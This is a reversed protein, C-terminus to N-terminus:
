LWPDWADLRQRVAERVALNGAPAGGGSTSSVAPPVGRPAAGLRRLTMALEDRVKEAGKANRRRAAKSKRSTRGQKRDPNPYESPADTEEGRATQKKTVTQKKTATKKKKQTAEDFKLKGLTARDAGLVLALRAALEGRMGDERGWGGALPAHSALDDFASALMRDLLRRLAVVKDALRPDPLGTDRVSMPLWGDMELVAGYQTLPGGFLMAALPSVASTERMYMTDGDTSLSLDNFTFLTSGPQASRNVSGPHVTAGKESATRFVTDTPVALNPYLASVLLAKILPQSHSNENLKPGGYQLSSESTEVHILGAEALITVIERSTLEISKFAMRSVFNDRFFDDSTNGWTKEPPRAEFSRARTFAELIVAHDSGSNGAWERKKSDVERRLNLDGQFIPRDRAAAGLIIMPDLCKFIIGLVIMKGLTPHVPLSALVRGLPTLEEEDTMAGLSMLNQLAIDVASPPPPEIAGALFDAVPVKLAQSKIDLCIEQLDTRLLAPLPVARMSERRPKTYLAYYEGDQVRGARGARQKANSKTIWKTQLHTIRRTQDYHNERIKGTDVVFRVDPITVSTEAINTSLIIKRCGQPVRDFVSKQSGQLTSHLMIIQFRKADNFRVGLPSTFRLLKDMGLIENLGPVFVLIAGSKSTRAIHAVTTAVLGLPVLADDANDTDVSSEVGSVTVENKRDVSSENFTGAYSATNSIGLSEALLYEITDKDTRLLRLNNRGHRSKMRKLVDDLYYEQVPFTRGPVSLTPCDNPKESPLSNGFYAAFQEAEITASMFVVRPLKKGQAARAAMISKLTTLLFDLIIDRDHVEDIVLHSVHDLVDDPAHMLRRLLVGTTCYLISGGPAPPMADARVQYGVSEQLNEAREVAVRRAVSTAAIRRPQTCIVNCSAGHGNEIAEDLLIQPVQTTKGSGTAGIIICYVNDRVIQRVQPAYQTMPLESRAQRLDALDGRARYDDMAEKLRSSKKALQEPTQAHKNTTGRSDEDHPRAVQSGSPNSRRPWELNQILDLEKIVGPELIMDKPSLKELYRGHGARLAHRFEDFLRPQMNSVTLAAVLTAASKTHLESGTRVEPKVGPSPWFPGLDEFKPVGVYLGRIKKIAVGLNGSTEGSDRCFAFFDNCNRTSLAYRDRSVIRDTGQSLHYLKAQRKFESAAAAEAYAVAPVNHIAVNIGHEPMQITISYFGQCERTEVSPICRYRAAYNYVELLRDTEGPFATKMSSGPLTLLGQDCLMALAHLAAARTAGERLYSDGNAVLINHNSLNVTIVTRFFPREQDLLTEKSQHVAAEGGLSKVAAFVARQVLNAHEADGKSLAKSAGPLSSIQQPTPLPLDPSLRLNEESFALESEGSDPVLNALEPGLSPKGEHKSWADGSSSTGSHQPRNERRAASKKPAQKKVPKPAKSDLDEILDRVQRQVRTKPGRRPFRCFSSSTSFIAVASTSKGHHDHFPPPRPLPRLSCFRLSSSYLRASARNAILSRM